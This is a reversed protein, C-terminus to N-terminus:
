KAKMEKLMRKESKIPKSTHNLKDWMLSDKMDIIFDNITFDKPAQGSEQQESVPWSTTDHEEKYCEYYKGTCTSSGAKYYGVNIMCGEEYFAGWGDRGLHSM